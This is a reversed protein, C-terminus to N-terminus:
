HTLIEVCLLLSFKYDIFLFGKKWVNRFSKGWSNGNELIFWVWIKLLFKMSFKRRSSLVISLNQLTRGVGSSCFFVVRSGYNVEVIINEANRPRKNMCKEYSLIIIIIAAMFSFLIHSHNAPQQSLLRAIWSFQMKIKLQISLRGYVGVVWEWFHIILKM